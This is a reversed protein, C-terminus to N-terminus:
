ISEHIRDAVVFRYSGSGLQFGEASIGVSVDVPLGTNRDVVSVVDNLRVTAETNPPVTLDFAVQGNVRNWSSVIKGGPSDYAARFSDMGKVFHPQVSFKRFGPGQEDVRIGGLAKYFWASIEGFMIHNRSLTETEIKWTEYLTTAGNRIWWGWSPYTQQTAVEFALDAYGNDSLAGLLTKSGLLGVDLHKDDAVVRKALNDAVQQRYAEPVIGWYLPGSLEAQSGGAYIANETDLFKANIAHKIYTALQEYKRADKSNGLVAASKSLILADEYYYLSILLQKDAITKYPVWDGLGWDTLGDPAISTVHDVFRKMSAYNEALVRADGYYRYLTWPIVVMSSTWDVGNGWDYGWTDTPIIAPLVGSELQADRHDALWKEYITIADYNFLATEIAIHADGTWGNKERQPCDTPYGQLNSLYSRNTAAWIKNVLEDSSEVKGVPRVDSNIRYATLNNATLNVPRDATVEVYQFGKYNFRPMFEEIGEGKLVYVDTQFPDKGNKQDSYIDITSQDVHYHSDITEGHKVRFTTGSEGHVTLKTIGAINEPLKYLYASDSIKMVELQNFEEVMRIPALAQAVLQPSPAERSIAAQWDVDSFSPLNWGRREKRADYHEGTYISNFVIPGLATKWTADSYLKASSGDAYTVYMELCFTPRDRWVAKDFNWESASQHNYWGNGLTIGIANEGKQVAGTVDLTVYLNRKDFRTFMPNLFQDSIKRGNVTLEFLGAAAVYVRASVVENSLSLVKRFYAAPQVSTDRVDTIWKAQWPENLKGTEFYATTRAASPIGQADWVMVTWYYRTRPQLEAGQYTVLTQDGSVKGSRWMNGEGRQLAGPDDSVLIEYADQRFNSADAEIKWGFRPQGADIGVPNTLHECTLSGPFFPQGHAAMTLLWLLASACGTIWQRGIKKREM